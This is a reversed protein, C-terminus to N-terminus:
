GEEKLLVVDKPACGLRVTAGSVVQQVGINQEMVKVETGDTLELFYQEHNGLFFMQRVQGSLVNERMEGDALVDLHEPRISCAVTEGERIGEFFIGAVLDGVATEVTVQPGVTRVRGPIFNTEGIFDAVFQSNPRSYVDRPTGLQGIKGRRMVAMRDAMSLAESQDHTVYVMSIGLGDHIRKIQERMELRLKADLNSLPEDMLVVDPELVLARGLAVRQQQGGSLQNPSRDAYEAMQVMELAREVRERRETGLINHMELGFGLNERVTMHPWLAYNQFVMGTNREHPPVQSVDQEGFLIRGEDPYY